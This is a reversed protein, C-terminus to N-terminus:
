NIEVATKSFIVIRESIDSTCVNWLFAFDFLKICYFNLDKGICDLKFRTAFLFVFLCRQFLKTSRELTTPDPITSLLAM